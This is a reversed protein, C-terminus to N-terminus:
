LTRLSSKSLTSPTSGASFRGVMECSLSGSHNATFVTISSDCAQCTIGRNFSALACPITSYGNFLTTMYHPDKLAFGSFLIHARQLLAARPQIFNFGRDPFNHVIHPAMAVACQQVVRALKVSESRALIDAHIM